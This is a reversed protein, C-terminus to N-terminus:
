EVVEGRFRLIHNRPDTNATVTVTKDFVGPNKAEMSTEVFGSGGPLIAERTYETATCGCAPKVNELQLPASGTNRFTFRYVVKDGKAVQGFSHDMADFTIMSIEAPASLGDKGNMSAQIVNGKLPDAGLSGSSERCGLLYFSSLLLIAFLMKPYM